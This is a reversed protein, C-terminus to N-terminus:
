VKLEPWHIRLWERIPEERIRYVVLKLLSTFNAKMWELEAIGQDYLRYGLELVQIRKLGHLQDLGAPLRWSMDNVERQGHPRGSLVLHRLRTLQGLREMFVCEAQIPDKLSDALCTTKSPETTVESPRSNAELRSHPLWIPIDLTELLTCTWPQEIIQRLDFRGGITIPTVQLTKLASCKALVAMLPKMTGIDLALVLHELRQSHREAVIPVVSMTNHGMRLSQLQHPPLAALFLTVISDATYEFSLSTLRSLIGSNLLDFTTKHFSTQIVRLGTIHLFEINPCRALLAGWDAAGDMHSLYLEKLPPPQTQTQDRREMGAEVDGLRSHDSHSLSFHIEELRPFADMLCQFDDISLRMNADLIRLNSLVLSQKLCELVNTTLSKLQPNRDVMDGFSPWRRSGLAYSPYKISKLLTCRESLLDLFEGLLSDKPLVHFVLNRIHRSNKIIAHRWSCTRCLPDPESDSHGSSTHVTADETSPLKKVLFTSWALPNYAAYWAQSVLACAHRDQSSMQRAVMANLEPLGMLRLPDM